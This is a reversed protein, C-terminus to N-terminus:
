SSNDPSVSVRTKSWELVVMVRYVEGRSTTGPRIPRSRGSCIPSKLDVLTYGIRQGLWPKFDVLIYGIRQRLWPKCTIFIGWVTEPKIRIRTSCEIYNTSYNIHLIYSYWCRNKYKPNVGSLNWVLMMPLCPHMYHRQLHGNHKIGFGLTLHFYVGFTLGQLGAPQGDDWLSTM